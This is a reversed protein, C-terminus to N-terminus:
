IRDTHAMFELRPDHSLFGQIYLEFSIEYSPGSYYFNADYQKKNQSNSIALSVQNGYVVSKLCNHIDKLSNVQVM